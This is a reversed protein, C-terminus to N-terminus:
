EQIFFLDKFDAPVELTDAWKGAEIIACSLKNGACAATDIYLSDSNKNYTIETQRTHGVVQLRGINFLVSRNWLVGIDREMESSLFNDWEADGWTESKDLREKYLISIGAHSIFCDPLNYFLPLTELYAIHKRFDEQSSAYAKLTEYNGNMVWATRYPHNPYKFAYLFMCDHNGLTVHIPHNICYDLVRHSHAGRDVLDGVCYLEIDGYKERILKLLSQLTYYCGHVDGIVAIV